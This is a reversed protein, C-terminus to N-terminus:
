NSQLENLTVQLTVTEGGREVVISITQGISFGEMLETLDEMQDVPTNDVKVIIDNKKLGARDAPGNKTVSIIIIGALEYDDTLNTQATIGLGARKVKGYQLLSAVVKKVTNIPIAYGLGETSITGQESSTSTEKMSVIGVVAGSKDFIPGGSNGPNIAADIQIMKYRVGNFDVTRNLSSVIGQTVTGEMGLPSGIAVVLQGVKLIGSDGLAAAPLGSAGELKILAVDTRSDTGVLSAEFERGDLLKAVYRNSDAVVHNNTIVYGDQSVIVGSGTGLLENNSYVSVTVVTKSLEEAISVIPDASDIVPPSVEPLATFLPDRSYTPSPAVTEGPALTRGATASPAATATGPGPGIDSDKLYLVMGFVTGILMFSIILVVLAAPWRRPRPANSYPMDYYDRNNM